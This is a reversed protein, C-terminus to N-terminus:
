HADHSDHAPGAHEDKPKDAKPAHDDHASSDKAIEKFVDGYKEKFHHKEESEKATKGAKNALKERSEKSIGSAYIYSSLSNRVADKATDAVTQYAWKNYGADKALDNLSDKVAGNVTKKAEDIASKADKIRQSQAGIDTIHEQQKTKITETLRAVDDAASSDGSKAAEVASALTTRLNKMEEDHKEYTQELEQVATKHDSERDKVAKDAFAAMYAADTDTRTVKDRADSQGQQKTDKDAQVRKAFESTRKLFEKQTGEFGGLVKGALADVKMGASGAVASGLPTRMANFDKKGLGSFRQSGFDYMRQAFKNDTTAAKKGLRESLNKAPRGIFQRGGMAAVRAGAALGLAPIMSAYNFGAIQTSFAAALKFSAFLMGLILIYSFLASINTANNPNSILEGLLGGKPKLATAIMMTAWLLMMLLPAFVAANILSSWWKQWGYEGESFSPILYTAFALSSTIMLFVILVARSVVLFSGYLLVGALAVLLTAAFIGHLLAMWGNNGADAGDKLTIFTDGLSTVGLIRIFRGSIGDSAFSTSGLTSSSQSPAGSDFGATYFQYAVFNSSDVILKTFLLSFNILTAVILVRAIMKKQGFKELGVIISIAIFILMGIILINSIDRFVTWVNGIAKQVNDTLFGNTSDGFAIVTYYILSNFLIGTIELLKAALTILASGIIASISRGICTIPTSFFGRWGSCTADTPTIKEDAIKAAAADATAGTLVTDPKSGMYCQGNDWYTSGAGGMDSGISACHAADFATIPTQASVTTPLALVSLLGLAGLVTLAIAAYTKRANNTHM